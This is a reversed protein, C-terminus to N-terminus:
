AINMPLCHQRFDSKRGVHIGHIFPMSLVLSMSTKVKVQKGGICHMQVWFVVLPTVIGNRDKIVLLKTDSIGHSSCSQTNEFVFNLAPKELHM